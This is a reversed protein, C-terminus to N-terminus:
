LKKLSAETAPKALNHPFLFNRAYGEKVRVVEGKRGIKEVDKNLIVEM